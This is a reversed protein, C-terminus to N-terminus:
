VPVGVLSEYVSLPHQLSEIPLAVRSRVRTGSDVVSSHHPLPQLQARELALREAPVAHTTAHLRQNAVRELWPGIHANAAALDLQLGVQKLSAPAQISPLGLYFAM